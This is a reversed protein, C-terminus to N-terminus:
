EKVKFPLRKCRFGAAERHGGGKRKKAFVSLDINDKKTFIKVEWVNKKWCYTIFIDYNGALSDFMQSNGGGRNLAFAKHGEFETEFGFGNLYAAYDSDRYKLILEGNRATNQVFSKSTIVQNWLPQNEPSTDPHIRMGYQFSLVEPSDNYKLIDYFGLLRVGLPVPLSTFHEWTLVCAAEQLSLRAVKFSNPEQYKKFETVASKHHDIWILDCIKALKLMDVFPQLTFDVMYVVKGRAKDWPFGQGYNIGYLECEPFQRRVIAGSCRGDLDASHYFCIM